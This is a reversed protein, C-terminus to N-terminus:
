ACLLLSPLLQSLRFLARPHMIRMIMAHGPRWLLPQPRPHRITRIGTHKKGGQVLPHHHPILPSSITCLVLHSFSQALLQLANLHIYMLRHRYSAILVAVFQTLRFCLPWAPLIAFITPPVRRCAGLRVDLAEPLRPSKRDRLRTCHPVHRSTDGSRVMLSHAPWLM